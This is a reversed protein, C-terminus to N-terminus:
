VQAEKLSIGYGETLSPQVYVEADKLYAYPNTQAGLLVLENQINLKKIIAEMAGRLNGDGILYWRFRFGEEKLRKVVEPILQPGKEKSLRGLTVIRLGHYGDSFSEGDKALYQLEKASVINEFVY